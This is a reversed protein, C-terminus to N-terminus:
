AEVEAGQGAFLDSLQRWITAPPVWAFVGYRHGAEDVPTAPGHMGRTFGYVVGAICGGPDWGAPKVPGLRWRLLRYVATGYVLAQLPYHHDEMAAVLRSPAYAALPVADARAHLRNTKYDAIVVLPDDAPRGPLRLVADISGNLLGALPLDFAPGTLLRAYATLRDGAPLSAALVRGV